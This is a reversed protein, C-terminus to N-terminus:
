RVHWEKIPGAPPPGSRSAPQWRGPRPRDTSQSPRCGWKVALGRWKAGLWRWKAGLWRGVASVWQWGSGAPVREWTRNFRSRLPAGAPPATDAIAAPATPLPLRVRKTGRQRVTPQRLDGARLGRGGGQGLGAPRGQVRLGLPPPEAHHSCFAGAFGIRGTAIWPLGYVHCSPIAKRRKRGTRPQHASATRANLGAGFASWGWCERGQDGRITTQFRRRAMCFIATIM